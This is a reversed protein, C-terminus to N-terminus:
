ANTRIHQEYNGGLRRFEDWFAPYSKKVCEANLITVDSNSVTAAIAASMAIRHDGASDVTGGRFQAPYVTLTNETATCDAGLARLMNCVTAVRDSEKMRLRGIDTFEAGNLAAACVALIPVLDPVDAASLKAFGGVLKDLYECVTRDGQPSEPDLGSITLQSTLANAGLFFAANSWDGEIQIDGPTQFPFAGSIEQSVSVGFDKLVKKTIDIYPKSEVKGTINLTSKGDMLSLALLLGTIFQSSVNGAITYNGCMLRGSCRVTTGTPRELFCGMREMEEWLPSLPRQPLRGSMQFTADIGLAGVVPLMFRLTSGSERCDLAAIQPLKRIPHVRYGYKCRRISAGLARLCDATAEIDENTQSCFIRTPANSFAACILVRHAHSKSPIAQYSGKLAGPHVLIDM